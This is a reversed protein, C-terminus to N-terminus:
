QYCDMIIRLFSGNKITLKSKMLNEIGHFNVNM